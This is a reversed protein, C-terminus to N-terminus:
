DDPDEQGDLERLIEERRAELEEQTQSDMDESRNLGAILKPKARLKHSLSQGRNTARKGAFLDSIFNPGFQELAKKEESNPTPIKELDLLNENHFHFASIILADLAKEEPNEEVM